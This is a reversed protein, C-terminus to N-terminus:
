RKELKASIDRLLEIMTDAQQMTMPTSARRSAERAAEIATANAERWEADTMPERNLERREDEEHWRDDRQVRRAEQGDSLNLARIMARCHDHTASDLAARMAWWTSIVSGNWIVDPCQRGEAELDRISERINDRLEDVSLLATSM